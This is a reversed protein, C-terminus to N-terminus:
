IHILSLRRGARASVTVTPRALPEHVGIGAYIHQGDHVVLAINAERSM